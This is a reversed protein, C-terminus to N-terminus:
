RKRGHREFPAAFSSVPLPSSSSRSLEFSVSFSASSTPGSFRYHSFSLFSLTSHAFLASSSPSFPLPAITLAFRLALSISLSLSVPGVFRLCLYEKHHSKLPSCPSTRSEISDKLWSFARSTRFGLASNASIFIRRPLRTARTRRRAERRAAKM